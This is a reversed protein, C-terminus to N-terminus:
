IFDSKWNAYKVVFVSAKYEELFQINVFM